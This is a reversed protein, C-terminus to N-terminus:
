RGIYTANYSNPKNKNELFDVSYNENSVYIHVISKQCDFVIDGASNQTITNYGSLYNIEDSPAEGIIVISPQISDMWKAPIKGSKRGHHPAFIIDAKPLEIVDKIREMFSNELDGFWLVTVGNELSYEIIPSINNPIKGKKADNKEKKHKINAFKSHGSM